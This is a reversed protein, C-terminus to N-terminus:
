FLEEIIDERSSESETAAEWAVSPPVVVVQERFSELAVISGM